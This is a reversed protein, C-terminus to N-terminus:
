RAFFHWGLWLWGVLLAGRLPARRGVVGFLEGIRLVAPHYRALLGLALLAAALLAWAVDLAAVSM